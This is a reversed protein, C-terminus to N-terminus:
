SITYSRRFHENLYGTKQLNRIATVGEVVTATSTTPHRHLVTTSLKPQAPSTVLARHFQVRYRKQRGKEGVKETLAKPKTHEYQPRLQHREIGKIPLQKIISNRVFRGPTATIDISPLLAVRHSEDSSNDIDGMMSGTMNSANDSDFSSPSSALTPFFPIPSGPIVLLESSFTFVDQNHPNMGGMFARLAYKLQMNDDTLEKKREQLIRRELSVRNLRTWFREM